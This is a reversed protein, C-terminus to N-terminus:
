TEKIIKWTHDAMLQVESLCKKDQMKEGWEKPSILSLFKSGNDREYLFYRKGVVPQFSIEAGYIMESVEVRKKIDQVQKALLKMQDFILHLQEETQEKMAQMAVGKIHGENTPVISFGGVSHAYEMLSPLDAVKEKLKALDISDIDVAKPKNNDM